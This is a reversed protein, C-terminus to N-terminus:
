SQDMLKSAFRSRKLPYKKKVQPANAVIAQTQSRDQGDMGGSNGVQAQHVDLAVPPVAPVEPSPARPPPPPADDSDSDDDHRITRSKYQERIIPMYEDKHANWWEQIAKRHVQARKEMLLTRQNIAREKAKERANFSNYIEDWFGGIIGLKAIRVFEPYTIHPQHQAKRKANLRLGYDGKYSSKLARAFDKHITAKPPM